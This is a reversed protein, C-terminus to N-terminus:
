VGDVAKLWQRERGEIVRELLPPSVEFWRALDTVEVLSPREAM